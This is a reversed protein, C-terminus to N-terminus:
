PAKCTTGCSFHLPHPKEHAKKPTLQKTSELFGLRGLKPLPDVPINLHLMGRALAPHGARQSCALTAKGMCWKRGSEESYM